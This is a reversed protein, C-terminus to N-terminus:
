MLVKQRTPAIIARVNPRGGFVSADLSEGFTLCASDVLDPSALGRGLMSDKTEIMIQMSPTFGYEITTLEQELAPDDPIQGDRLWNRFNGHLQARMNRYQVADPAAHSGFVHVVPTQLQGSKHLEALRDAVGKGIGTADICLCRINQELRIIDLVRGALQMQDPTYEERKQWLIRPGRRLTLVTRNKGTGAVDLGMVGPVYTLTSVDIRKARAATVLDSSFFQMDATRPFEGKVRVRVFDSDEGFDDIWKQIQVKNAVKVTRSDVRHTSWRHGLDGFCRRFRGASRTPNGFVCWILETDVDTLSGEVADWVEDIVGSCEDILFFSRRGVNHHGQFAVINHQSWPIADARWQKEAERAYISTATFQFWHKAIFLSYWKALEPWTKTRLQTETNATVIGRSMQYTALSWLILWAVTASKACGNGSAVAEQIVEGRERAGSRLKKGIDDLLKKNWEDPGDFNKLADLGWPFSFYVFGLPDQAYSAMENRLAREAEVDEPSIRKAQM